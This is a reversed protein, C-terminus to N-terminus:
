RAGKRMNCPMCLVQLNPPYNSGGKSRPVRHDISLQSTSGCERCQYGDRKMVLRRIETQGGWLKKAMLILGDTYDSNMVLLAATEFTIVLGLEELASLGASTDPESLHCRSALESIGLFRVFGEDDADDSLYILVLRPLPDIESDLAWTLARVSM